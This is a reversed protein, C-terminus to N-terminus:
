SEMSAFYATMVYWADSDIQFGLQEFSIGYANCLRVCHRAQADMAKVESAGEPCSTETRELSAQSLLLIDRLIQVRGEDGAQEQIYQILVPHFRLYDRPPYAAGFSVRRLDSLWSRKDNEDASWIESFYLPELLDNIWPRKQFLFNIFAAEDQILFAILQMLIWSSGAPSALRNRSIEFTDAISLQFTPKYTFLPWPLKRDRPRLSAQRVFEEAARPGYQEAFITSIYSAIRSAVLPHGAAIESIARINDRLCSRSKETLFINLIQTTIITLHETELETLLLPYFRIRHEQELETILVPNRTTLLMNRAQQPLADEINAPSALDIDDILLLSRTIEGEALWFKFADIRESANLDLWM